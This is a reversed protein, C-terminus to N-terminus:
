KAKAKAKANVVSQKVGEYLSGRVIWILQDSPNEGVIDRSVNEKKVADEGSVVRVEDVDFTKLPALVHSFNVPPLVGAVRFQLRRFVLPDLKIQKIGDTRGEALSRAIEEANDILPISKLPTEVPEVVPELKLSKPFGIRDFISQLYTEQKEISFYAEHPKYLYKDFRDFIKSYDYVVEVRTKYVLIKPKVENNKNIKKELPIVDSLFGYQSADRFFEVHVIKKEPLCKMSEFIWGPLFIATKEMLRQCVNLAVVGSLHNGYPYAKRQEKLQESRYVSMQRAQEMRAQAIENQKTQYAQYQQWGFVGAGVIGGFVLLRFVQKYFTKQTVDQLRVARVSGDSVLAELSQDYVLDYAGRAEEPLHEPSATYITLQRLSGQEIVVRLHQALHELGTELSFLSDSDPHIMGELVTLLYYTGDGFPLFAIMNSGGVSALVTALSPMGVKVGKSSKSYAVQRRFFLYASFGGEKAFDVSEGTLERRRVNSINELTEEPNLHLPLWELNIAYTRKGVRLPYGEGAVFEEPPSGDNQHNEMTM